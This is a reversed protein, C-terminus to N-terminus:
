GSGGDVQDGHSTEDSPNKEETTESKKTEPSGWTTANSAPVNSAPVGVDASPSTVSGTASARRQLLALEMKLFHIEEKQQECEAQKCRDLSLFFHDKPPIVDIMWNESLDEQKEM